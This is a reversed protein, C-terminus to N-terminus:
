PGDTAPFLWFLSALYFASLGLLACLAVLQARRRLFAWLPVAVIWFTLVNVGAALTWLIGHHQDAFRSSTLGALVAWATLVVVQFLQTGYGTVSPFAATSPTEDGPAREPQHGDFVRRSL